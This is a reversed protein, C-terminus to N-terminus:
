DYQRREGSLIRSVHAPHIGFTVAIQAQTGKAKRIALIDRRTLKAMGSKEGRVRPSRGKTVMDASNDAYTGARLHDIEVCPNCDCTHMVVIPHSRPHHHMWVIRHALGSHTWGYGHANTAGTYVLCGTRDRRVRAMVLDYPDARRIPRGM